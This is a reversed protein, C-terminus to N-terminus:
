QTNETFSLETSFKVYLINNLEELLMSLFSYNIWIKCILFLRHYSTVQAFDYLQYSGPFAPALVGTQRGWSLTKVEARQRGKSHVYNDNTMATFSNIKHTHRCTSCYKSTTRKSIHYGIFNLASTPQQFIAKQFVRTTVAKLGNYERSTAYLTMQEKYCLIFLLLDTGGLKSCIM